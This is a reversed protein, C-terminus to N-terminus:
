SRKTLRHLIIRKIPMYFVSALTLFIIVLSIPRLFFLPGASQLAIFLYKEFRGGLIFGLFFAPRNYGLNKMVVGIVTIVLTVLADEIQERYAYVGVMAIVMVMPALVRTPITAVRALYPAIPFCMAAAIVSAVLSILLLTLSLDLHTSMMEPGPILGLMLLGGLLLAMSSSAPIGLALTSLIAGGEKADNASEPAIVGEVTGTGFLEPHKSTQKAQGYAVFSAVDGGVGPILGVIFGIASSRLSLWKHRWVDKMGEFVAQREVTATKKAIVPDGKTAVSIAESMAFLGLTVPILRIGDYLYTSGFTFRGVGTVAQFGILSLILGLGGSILGKIMSGTSLVAIFTLGMFIIFVMDASQVAKIMPVVLPVMALALIVTIVSGAASSTLAAGIARGAQGKQSMPFGDMLTATNPGTGPIDLLIATISGGIFSVSSIAVLFPLAQNPTLKFVFSLFLAMPLLGSVGPILGFVVGVITGSLMFIWLELSGFAQLAKIFAEIIM